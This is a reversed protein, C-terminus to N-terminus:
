VHIKNKEILKEKKNSLLLLDSLTEPLPLDKTEPLYRIVASSTFCLLAFVTFQQSPHQKDKCVYM